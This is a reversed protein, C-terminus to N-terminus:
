VVHLIEELRKAPEGGARRVAGFTEQIRRDSYHSFDKAIKAQVLTSLYAMFEATTPPDKRFGGSLGNNVLAVWRKICASCEGCQGMKAAYCSTTDRFFKPPVGDRLAWAVLESKTTHEFPTRVTKQQGFLRSLYESTQQYFERSKDWMGGKGHMEGDLACIWVEDAYNAGITALLGNRGPIIQESPTIAKPYYSNVIPCDVIVGNFRLRKLAAREKQAYPHGLDVYVSLIEEEKYGNKMAWFTALASDLGGSTM